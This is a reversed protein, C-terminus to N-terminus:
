KSTYSVTFRAGSSRQALTAVAYLVYM